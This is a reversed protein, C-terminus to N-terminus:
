EYVISRAMEHPTQDREEGKIWSIFKRIQPGLWAGVPTKVWVFGVAILGLLIPMIINVTEDLTM